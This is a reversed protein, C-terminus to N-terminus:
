RTRLLRRRSSKTLLITSRVRQRSSVQSSMVKLRTLTKIPQKSAPLIYLHIATRQQDTM